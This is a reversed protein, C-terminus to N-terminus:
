TRKEGFCDGGDFGCEMSNLIGGDCKGDNVDRVREVPITCDPYKLNFYRGSDQGIALAAWGGIMSAALLFLAVSRLPIGCCLETVKDKVKVKEVRETAQKPGSGLYGIRAVFYLMDDLESIFYLATFDKLLDIIDDSQVIIVFSAFLVIMGKSFLLMNPILIHVVYHFNPNHGGADDTSVDENEDVAQRGEEDMFNQDGQLPSTENRESDFKIIIQKIWADLEGTKHMGSFLILNKMATLVDQQSAISIILCIFQGVRVAGLVRFPVDFPTTGESIQYLYSLHLMILITEICFTFLGLAWAGSRVRTVMLLSYTDMTLPDEDDYVESGDDEIKDAFLSFAARSKTAPKPGDDAEEKDEILGKKKLFTDFKKELLTEMEEESYATIAVPIDRISSEGARATVVIEEIDSAIPASEQAFASNFTFVLTLSAFLMTFLKM